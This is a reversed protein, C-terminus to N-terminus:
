DCTVGSTLLRQRLPLILGVASRRSKRSIFARSGVTQIQRRGGSGNQEPFSLTWQLSTRGVREYGLVTLDSIAENDEDRLQALTRERREFLAWWVPKAERRYYGLLNFTMRRARQEDTDQGEDDPLGGLLQGRLANISAQVELARDSPPSPEKAALSRLQIGFEEEAEPRRCLLWAYLARTSLCDDENYGAIEDLHKKNRDEMWAQWRRLSGIAGRLEADREFGFVPELAKLGYGETGARIGQRVIGYLDVFVERRLLEDLEAERTSHRAVLKKLAVTEYSNYHFVHLEPFRALRDTIWDIWTELAIREEARSTAWLPYYVPRGANEFV